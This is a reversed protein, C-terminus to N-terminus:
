TTLSLLGRIIDALRRLEWKDASNLYQKNSISILVYPKRDLERIAAHLESLESEYSRIDTDAIAAERTAKEALERVLQAAEYGIKREVIDILDFADRILVLEGDNTFFKGNIV